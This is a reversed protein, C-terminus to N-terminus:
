SSFEPLPRQLTVRPGAVRMRLRLQEQRAGVRHGSLAWPGSTSPDHFRRRMGFVRRVDQRAQAPPSERRLHLLAQARQATTQPTKSTFKSVVSHANFPSCTLPVRGEVSLVEMASQILSSPLIHGRNPGAACSTNQAADSAANSRISYRCATICPEINGDGVM